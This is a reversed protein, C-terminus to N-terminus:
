HQPFAHEPLARTLVEGLETLATTVGLQMTGDVEALDVTESRWEVNGDPSVELDITASTTNPLAVVLSVREVLVETDGSLVRRENEDAGLEAADQLEALRRHLDHVVHGAREVADALHGVGERRNGAAVADLTRKIATTALDMAKAEHVDGDMVLIPLLKQHIAGALLQLAPLVDLLAARSPSTPADPAPAATTDM